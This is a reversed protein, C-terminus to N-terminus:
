FYTCNTLILVILKNLSETLNISNDIKNQLYEIEVEFTDNSLLTDPIGYGSKVVTLDIRWLNGVYFSTRYKRRVFNSLGNDEVPPVPKSKSPTEESLSIKYSLGNYFEYKIVPILNISEEKLSSITEKLKDIEKNLLLLEDPDTTISKKYKLDKLQSYYDRGLTNISEKYNEKQFFPDVRIKNENLFIGTIKDNAIYYETRQNGSKSKIDFTNIFSHPYNNKMFYIYLKDFISKDVVNTGNKFFRIELEYKKNTNNTLLNYINNLVVLEQKSFILCNTTNLIGLLLQKRTLIKLFERPNSSRIAKQLLSDITFPDSIFNMISMITSLGNPDKNKRSRIIKFLTNDVPSPSYKFEAVDGDSYEMKNSKTPICMAPRPNGDRQNINYPQGSRTYLHWINNSIIKIRFDITQQQLPKWKYQINNEGIWPGFPIYTTDFPQIILGDAEINKLNNDRIIYEYINDVTKLLDLSYWKKSFLRLSNINSSSVFSELTNKRSYYDKNLFSQGKYFLCDFIFFYHNNGNNVMEGDFLSDKETVIAQDFEWFNLQRDIFYCRGISTTFLLFRDGDVKLTMKYAYEGSREKRLLPRVLSRELTIPMGGIFDGYETTQYNRTLSNYEKRLEINQKNIISNGSSDFLLVPIKTLIM